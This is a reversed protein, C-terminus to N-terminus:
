FPKQQVKRCEHKMQATAAGVLVEHGQAQVPRAHLDRVQDRVVRHTSAPRVSSTWNAQLKTHMSSQTTRLITCPLTDGQLGMWVDGCGLGELYQRCRWRRRATHLMEVWGAWPKTATVGMRHGPAPPAWTPMMANVLLLCCISPQPAASPAGLWM